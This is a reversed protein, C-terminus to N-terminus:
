GPRWVCHMHPTIVTGSPRFEQVYSVNCVRVANGGPFYRPYVGDPEAQFSPYVRLRTPPRRIRRPTSGEEAEPQSAQATRVAPPQTQASTGAAPLTLIGAVIVGTAAIRIRAM